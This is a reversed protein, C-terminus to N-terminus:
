AAKQILGLTTNDLFREIGCVANVTQLAPGSGAFCGYELTNAFPRLFAPVHDLTEGRGGASRGLEALGADVGGGQLTEQRAAFVTRAYLRSDRWRYINSSDLRALVRCIRDNRSFSFGM